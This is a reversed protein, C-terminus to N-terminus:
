TDRSEMEIRILERRLTKGVASKPLEDIFAIRRPIAYPALKDGCFETLEKETVSAGPKIVVWAKLAEQGEKEPHPVAAVGVELVATHSKLADEVEAPYVNFGGILAMDKKRDVIYFYGDEDMRAIDGTFLWIKGDKERLVNKTETPMKHYGVMVNPGAIALEGIDGAPVDTEGDDLSVIRMEMDPLPLGISGTRNEGKIPNTHTATPAESMGFGERVSAGSLREFEEKTARPLPASGSICYILSKLSADGSTIRPHNNVANYLAPVGPFLTCKFHDIIDVVEDIDRANPILIIQSGMSVSLSLMAVLGYVHFMPIGGVFINDQPKIPLTEILKQMQLMNAVLASHKAMAAKSVGTTGGTYQFLALDNQPDLEVNVSRGAYRSLLDQFWYDGSKVAELYHGDKKERALTFLLKAMGPLYEKINAVIVTKVKTKPQIKKILDYFLTLTVIFEADCDDIQHAMKEAPYTPNTAAVVGGAKLIAFFTVSFAVSNPMVIAVRDGKKLGMEVFAAALADSAHNLESYTMHSSVRGLLPLRTSTVLVSKDPYKKAADLLFQHLPVDPYDITEPMGPDYTKTWPKDAYTLTM